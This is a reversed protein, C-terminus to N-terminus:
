ALSAREEANEGDRHLLGPRSASFAKKMHVYAKEMDGRRELVEAYLGHCRLLRADAGIATLETIALQFEQDCGPKDGDRDAALGLWIHAEAINPREELREALDLAQHALERARPVRGEDLSLESLSLLVQSRGIQLDTEEHLGLSRDLHERAQAHDGKSLLVLGLNNEIRALNLQDRLVEFLAISRNGFRVAAELQGTQRYADCLGGYMMALRRLDYVAGAADVAEKYAAIALDWDKNALHAAGLVGLLRAETPKSTPEVSRCIDIARQALEVAGSRQTLNALSSESGLCEALMLKDDAAEFHAHAERLLVEAEMPRALNLLSHAMYYRIRGLRHASSGAALLKEGKEVAEAFRNAVVLAELELLGAQAEDIAGGPDALFFEVPKGTRRAIHELTPLSPRTRGTEILYIAPATVHGKGLQALSLGSELRAQRVAGQRLNVGPLRRRSTARPASPPRLAGRKRGDGTEIV